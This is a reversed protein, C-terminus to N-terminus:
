IRTLAGTAVIPGTPLRTPSGGPPEISIALTAGAALAARDAASLAIATTGTATLLGLSHPVGDAGIRWLEAVKGTPVEIATPVRVQGRAADFLAAFAAGEKGDAPTMAAAYTIPAPAAPRPAPGPSPPPVDAPRLVLALALCAALASAAGTAWRWPRANDVAAMLRGEMWAPPEVEPYSPYLAAFRTRWTDVEQAFEPEAAVRRLAAAREEGELLGLALEAATISDDPTLPM